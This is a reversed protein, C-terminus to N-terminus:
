RWATSKYEPGFTRVQNVSDISGDRDTDKVDALVMDFHDRLTPLMLSAIYGSAGTILVKRKAM